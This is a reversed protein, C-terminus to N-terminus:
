LRDLLTAQSVFGAIAGGPSAGFVDCSEGFRRIAGGKHHPQWYHIPSNWVGLPSLPDDLPCCKTSARVCKLTYLARAGAAGFRGLAEGRITITVHLLFLM